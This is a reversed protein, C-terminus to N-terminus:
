RMDNVLARRGQSDVDTRTSRSSKLQLTVTADRRTPRSQAVTEENLSESQEAFPSGQSPLNGHLYCEM